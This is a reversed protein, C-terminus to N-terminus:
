FAAPAAAAAGKLTTLQTELNTITAQVAEVNKNFDKEKNEISTTAQGLLKLDGNADKLKLELGKQLQLNELQRKKKIMAKLQERQATIDTEVRTVKTEYGKLITEVEHVWKAEERLDRATALVDESVAQIADKLQEEQASNFADEQVKEQGKAYASYESVAKFQPMQAMACASLALVAVWKM